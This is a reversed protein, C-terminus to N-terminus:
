KANRWSDIEYKHLHLDRNSGDWIWMDVEALRNAHQILKVFSFLSLSCRIIDM